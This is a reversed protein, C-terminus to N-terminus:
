RFIKNYNDKIWKFDVSGTKTKKVFINRDDIYIDAFVKNGPEPDNYIERSWPNDNIADPTIGKQKMWEVAEELYKGRRCTNLVIKCGDRRFRNIVEIAYPNEKGCLPFTDGDRTLTGDFDIAIVKFSLQSM